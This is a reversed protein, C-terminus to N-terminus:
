KQLRFDNFFLFLLIFRVSMFFRALNPATSKITVVKADQAFFDIPQGVSKFAGEILM